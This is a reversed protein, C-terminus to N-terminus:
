SVNLYRWTFGGHTKRKNKCCNCVCSPQFGYKKVDNLAKFIIKEKTEINTGVVSLATSEDQGKKIAIRWSKTKKFRGRDTSYQINGIYTTWELNSVCNNKPNFDKHNIINKGQIPQLFHMAVLRHVFYRKKEKGDSLCARLYGRSNPLLKLARGKRTIVGNGCEMTRIKSRVHGLNSIQYFQEYGHIDKWIEEM